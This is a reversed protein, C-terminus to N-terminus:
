QDLSFPLPSVTAEVGNADLKTGPAAAERRVYGLGVTLPVALPLTAVSTIEGVDRADKTLKAGPSPQAGAFRFGAFTRHVAGRSRIREVIEQGVYCGKTFNLAREQATEQPLERERIDQGYRPIGHAIRWMERAEAGIPTAGAAVLADWLRPLDSPELWIEFGGTDKHLLSISIENWPVDQVTIQEQVSASIGARRLVEGCRPGELSIAAAKETADTMEVDDMIIYHDFTSRVKEAQTGDTDVVLYEGRNYVYMDALIHGQPNLLFSYIGSGVPLDRVNNTIMGNLWRTRDEGTLIIKARSSLDFVGCGARLAAFEEAPSSYSRPQDAPRQPASVSHVTEAM